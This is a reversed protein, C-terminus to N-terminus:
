ESSSRAAIGREIHNSMGVKPLSSPSSAAGWGVSTTGAVFM